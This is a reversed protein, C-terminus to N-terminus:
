AKTVFQIAQRANRLAHHRKPPTTLFREVGPVLEKCDHGEIWEKHAAFLLKVLHASIIPEPQGHDLLFTFRKEFYEGVDAPRTPEAISFDQYKANRGVFLAMQLLGAPWLEPFQEAQARVAGAFTIGHTVDLWGVNDALANDTRHTAAVDFYYLRRCLARFLCDYLAESPAGSHSVVLNLAAAIGLKDFALPDPVDSTGNGFVALADQYGRFEPIQEERTAYM